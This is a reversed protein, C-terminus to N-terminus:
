SALVMDPLVVMPLQHGRDHRIMDDPHGHTRHLSLGVVILASVM